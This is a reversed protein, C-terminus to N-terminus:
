QILKRSKLALETRNGVKVLRFITYLYEKITGETLGLCGAIEKNSKAEGVLQIIQKHRLSLTTIHKHPVRPKVKKCGLCLHERGFVVFEKGCQCCIRHGDPILNGQM